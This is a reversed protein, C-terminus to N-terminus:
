LVEHQKEASTTKYFRVRELSRHGILLQEELLSSKGIFFCNNTKFGHIGASRCIRATTNGLPNYHNVPTGAPPPQPGLHHSTAPVDPPTLRAYKKNLLGRSETLKRSPVNSKTYEKLGGPGL